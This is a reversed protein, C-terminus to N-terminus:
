GTKKKAEKKKEQLQSLVMQEIEAKLNRYKNIKNKLDEIEISKNQSEKEFKIKIGM